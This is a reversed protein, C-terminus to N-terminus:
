KPVEGCRCKVIWALAIGYLGSDIESELYDTDYYSPFGDNCGGIQSFLDLGSQFIYHEGNVYFSYTVNGLIGIITEDICEKKYYACLEDCNNSNYTERCYDIDEVADISCMVANGDEIMELVGQYTVIKSVGPFTPTSPHINWFEGVPTTVALGAVAVVAIIVVIPFFWTYNM